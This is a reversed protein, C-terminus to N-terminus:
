WSGCLGNEFHRGYRLVPVLWIRARVDQGTCKRLYPALPGFSRARLPGRLLLFMSTRLRWSGAKQGALREKRWKFGRRSHIGLVVMSVPWPKVLGRFLFDYNTNESRCISTVADTKWGHGDVDSSYKRCGLHFGGVLSSISGGPTDAM